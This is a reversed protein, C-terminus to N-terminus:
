EDKERYYKRYQSPSIGTHKKFVRCFSKADKFGVEDTINEIKENTEVLLNEAIKIRYENLFHHFSTGMANKFLRCFTSKGCKCYKAVEDITLDKNYDRYILTLSNAISYTDSKNEGTDYSIIERNDESLFAYLKYLGGIIMLESYTDSAKVDGVITDLYRFIENNGKYIKYFPLNAFHGFHERLLSPGFEILLTKNDCHSNISHRLMSGVVIAEGKKVEHFENDIGITFSGDLCYLIEMEYHFHPQFDEVKKIILNYILRGAFLNQYM